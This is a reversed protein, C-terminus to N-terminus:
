GGKKLGYVGPKVKELRDDRMITIAVTSLFNKSKTKYRGEKLLTETIEKYHMPRRKERLLKVIADKVTLDNLRRANPRRLPPISLRQRGGRGLGLEKEVKGIEQDLRRIETALKERRVRLRRVRPSVTVPM